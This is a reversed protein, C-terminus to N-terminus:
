LVKDHNKLDVRQIYSDLRKQYWDYMEDNRGKSGALMLILTGFDFSYYTADFGIHELQETFRRNRLEAKLLYVAIEHAPLLSIGSPLKLLNLNIPLGPEM